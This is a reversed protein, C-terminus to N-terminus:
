PRSRHRHGGSLPPPGAARAPLQKALARTETLQRQSRAFVYREAWGYIRLNVDRTGRPTSAHITLDRAGDRVLLCRVPSLAFLSQPAVEPASLTTSSDLRAVGQDNQVFEAGGTAELLHWSMHDIREALALWGDIMLRLGQERQNGLHLRGDTAIALVETRADELEEDNDAGGAFRSWAAAFAARDRALAAMGDRGFREVAAGAEAIGYPTRREQLALFLAITTRDASTLKRPHELLTRVAPAAYAEVLGLLDEIRNDRPSLDSEIAYFRRRSAAEDPRVKLPRGTRKDLQYLQASPGDGVIFNGLIFRPVFHHRKKAPDSPWKRLGAGIDHMAQALPVDYRAPPWDAPRTM